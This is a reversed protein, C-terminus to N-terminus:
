GVSKHQSAEHKQVDYLSPVTSPLGVVNEDV